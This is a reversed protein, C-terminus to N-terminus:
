ALAPSILPDIYWTTSAKAAKIYARVYGKLNPTFSVSMSFRYGARFVATGGDTVSGGDVATAYGAPESGATTGSTTCWFVRGVNDPVSIANGVSYAHSNQRAIANWQSTSDATWASGSALASGVGGTSVAGLPYSASSLYEIDPWIDNNNPLAAANIIGHLTVTVSSGTTDNWETIPSLEFPVYFLSGSTTTVNWSIGTVGDSAGGTRIITTEPILTGSYDYIAQQYTTGSSDSVVNYTRAGAVTPTGAVTVSAGTRCNILWYNCANGLSQVITKGSGLSSLDVGEVVCLPQNTASKFLITPLTAGIVAASTNSNRWRFGGDMRCASSAVGFQMTCNDLTVGTGSVNIISGSTGLNRLSCNVFRSSNNVTLNGTSAGSGSNFVIGVYVAISALTLGNNGTITIQACAPSSTTYPDSKLNSNGPPVSATHDVCYINNPAALAGSPTITLSSAQTEAHNDAVFITSGAGAWNTGFALYLRAFPAAWKTFNSAAGLSTWKALSDATVTGATASFTPVSGAGAASTTCVQLSASTVDYIVLGAGPTSSTTWVSANTLDGNVAPQGTVEVWNTTNDTTAGGKTIIWVPETAGTATNSTNTTTPAAVFVRENGAPMAATITEGVSVTSSQSLNYTGTGGTGTGLSTITSNATVGTGSLLQGVTFTGTVSGAVTLVTTAITGSTCSAQAGSQRKLTGPAISASAAWASVASWGISGPVTGGTPSAPTTSNDECYWAAVGAYAM